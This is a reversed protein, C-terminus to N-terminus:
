AYKSAWSKRRLRRQTAFQTVEASIPAPDQQLVLFPLNCCIAILTFHLIGVQDLPAVTMMAINWGLLAALFCWLLWSDSRRVTVRAAQYLRRYYLVNVFLFPILGLLGTQALREIYINVLDKHQWHFNRNDSGPGIGVYGYGFLWHNTMGGGLAENVLEIRYSANKESFAARTPIEYFHRNSYFELIVCSVIIFVLLERWYRRFPYCALVVASVATSFFPGSSMSSFVALLMLAAAVVTKYKKWIRYNWLALCLPALAAFFLGFAIHVGFNLNARHLGYRTDSLDKMPPWAHYARTFAFPNDGTVSQYLGLLAVPAYAIALTKIMRLLHEKTIIILRASFYPLATGFFCAGQREIVLRLPVNQTLALCQGLFAVIVFTDLLNWKFQRLLQTRFLVNALVALIIVRCVSFDAPGLKVTLFQPYWVLAVFYICLSRVPNSFFAMLSGICAITFTAAEM